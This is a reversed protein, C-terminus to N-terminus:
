GIVEGTPVGYADRIITPVVKVEVGPAIQARESRSTLAAVLSSLRAAPIGLRLGGDDMEVSHTAAPAFTMRGANSALELERGFPLRAQLLRAVFPAQLAGIAVTTQKRKQTWGAGDVYLLGTSSGDQEIGARVRAAVAPDALLSGRETDTVLLPISPALIELLSTSTWLQVAEYEEPTLGVVQLFRVKGHVTDITGLEPDAAFAIARVATDPRDAAIPGNINMHHGAEFRNGSTFVYRALNQLLNAAWVPPGTDDALKVLRFTFEFGWGSDEANDSVKEYLESMGYSVYHWHPVPADRGYASIGDLPDNGGLSWNILTGWHQPEADGYVDSLAQTIADWGPAEDM